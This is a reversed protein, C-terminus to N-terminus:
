HAAGSLTGQKKLFWAHFQTVEGTCAIRTVPDDSAVAGIEKSSERSLTRHLSCSAAPLALYLTHSVYHSRKTQVATVM